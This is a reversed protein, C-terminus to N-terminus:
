KELQRSVKEVSEDISEEISEDIKVKANELGKNVIDNMGDRTIKSLQEIDKPSLKESVMFSGFVFIVGVIILVIELVTM